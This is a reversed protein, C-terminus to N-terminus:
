RRTATAGARRGQPRAPRTAATGRRRAGSGPRPALAVRGTTVATAETAPLTKRFGSRRRTWSTGAAIKAGKAEPSPSRNGGARTSARAYTSWAAARPAVATESSASAGAGTEYAAQP